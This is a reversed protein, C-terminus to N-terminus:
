DALKVLRVTACTGGATVRCVYAGPVVEAGRWDRGDWVAGPGGPEVRLTRVMRGEGSYVAVMAPLTGAPTRITVSRRFPNPACVVGEAPLDAAGGDAGDRSPGAAVEFRWAPCFWAGSDGGAEVRCSWTYQRGPELGGGGGDRWWPLDSLADRVLTRGDWVRFHYTAPFFVPLVLLLPRRTHVVAGDEPLKPGPPRLRSGVSFGWAPFFWESWGSADRVRCTWNYAHGAQLQRGAEGVNWCPLHSYGEAAVSGLETVRFHYLESRVGSEVFLTPAPDLLTENNAPLLPIPPPPSVPGPLDAAPAAAAERAWGGPVGAAYLIGVACFLLGALRKVDVGQHARGPKVHDAPRLQRATSRELAAETPQM